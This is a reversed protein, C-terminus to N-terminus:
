LMVHLGIQLWLKAISLGTWGKSKSHKNSAYDYIRAHM